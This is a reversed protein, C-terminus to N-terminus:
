EHLAWFSFLKKEETSEAFQFIICCLVSSSIWNQALAFSCCLLFKQTFTIRFNTNFNKWMIKAHVNHKILVIKMYNTKDCINHQVSMLIFFFTDVCSSHLKVFLFKANSKACFIVWKVRYSKYAVVFFWTNFNWVFNTNFVSFMFKFYVNVYFKGSHLLM